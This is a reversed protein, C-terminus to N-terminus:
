GRNLAQSAALEGKWVPERSATRALWRSVRRAAFETGYVFCMLPGLTNAAAMGVFYLGPVSSEFSSSLLPSQQVNRIQSLLEPGLFAIRRLDVRYGTAAIVHDASLTKRSGDSGTIEMSVKGDKATIEGIAVGTHLPVKGVVEQKVFWGPAPSLMKRVTDVRFAEPMHRFVRPAKICWFAKWGPGLGTKPARMRQMLPRPAPPDHFRITNRRAVVEVSAGAQHLLAALDLASAGAGVVIVQKGKFQGLDHHDSSHTVFGRVGDFIEPVHRFHRIGVAVVVQRAKFVEGDELAVEFGEGARRMSKVLRDEVEPVLRRQFELGYGSFVEIPVPLGSERFPIGREACYKDLTFESKPDSLSSAFGDSKLRMGKPMQETWAQMPRGFIRFSVGKARLHAAISLGYPGAGIIAVEITAGTSSSNTMFEDSGKM